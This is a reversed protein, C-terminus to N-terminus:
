ENVKGGNNKNIYEISSDDLVLDICWLMFRRVDNNKVSGLRGLVKDSREDNLTITVSLTM